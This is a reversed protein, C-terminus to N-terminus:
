RHPPRCRRTGAPTTSAPGQPRSTPEVRPRSRARHGSSARRESSPAERVIGVHDQGHSEQLEEHLLYPNEGPSATSRRPRGGSPRRRDSDDDPAAATRRPEGVYEAAGAVPSAHRLRDPGVALQRGAPQRRAARGRVRRLRLAGARQDHQSEADVRIGGMFYHLTPGVEMPERHHRGRGAGQVPPVDVPCSASSTTPRGRARPSTSSPAATRPAAARRSRTARSRGPWSTAPSCSPRAARARKTGELWRDAEEITDATEPAFREPIYNFMFREGESNKLIGGDGRVGETVLIGACRPRGSWARHSPVPHVRHGDAGGRGRLGHGTGDGTYEWSNSTVRWAKGRRRHGPDRGQCRFLVFRGTERWYAAVGAIRREGDKLLELATCEMHVDIGQHM